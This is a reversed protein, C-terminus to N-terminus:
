ADRSQDAQDVQEVLIELIIDREQVCLGAGQPGMVSEQVKWTKGIAKSM